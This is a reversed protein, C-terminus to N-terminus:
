RVSRVPLIRVEGAKLEFAGLDREFLVRGGRGTFEVRAEYAGPPLSVRALRVEAPLLEWYRTDARETLVSFLSGGLRVLDAALEGYEGSKKRAYHAAVETAAAKAAARVIAKAMIRGKRSALNKLAIGEINQGAESDAGKAGDAGTLVLRSGRVLRPLTEFRPFAIVTLTGTPLRIRVWDEVKAPGKGNYHVLYVEANRRRDSVPVYPANPCDRRARGLDAEGMFGAASLYKECLLRPVPLGYARGYWGRYLEVARRYAIFADNLDDAYGTGEYLVGILLRSLADEAYTNKREAEYKANYMALKSDMKRAEVLAEDPKGMAAYGLAMFENVLVSEFDEGRYAMTLDNLMFSAGHRTLSETYLAEIRRDAEDLSRVSEEYRGAYHLAAGENMYYLVADGGGFSGKRARVEEVAADFDGAAMRRYALESIRPPACGVALLFLAFLLSFLVRITM